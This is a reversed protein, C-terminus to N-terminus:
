DGASTSAIARFGKKALRVASGADWANPLLFFGDQHLAHFDARKRATDTM